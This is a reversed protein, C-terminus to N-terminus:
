DETIMCWLAMPVTIPSLMFYFGGWAQVHSGAGKTRFVLYGIGYSVAIYGGVIYLITM